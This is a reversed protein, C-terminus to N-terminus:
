KKNVSSGVSVLPLLSTTIARPALSESDGDRGGAAFDLISLIFKDHIEAFIKNNKYTVEPGPQEKRTLWLAEEYVGCSMTYRM